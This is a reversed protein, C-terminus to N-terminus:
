RCFFLFLDIANLLETATMRLIVKEQETWKPDTRLPTELIRDGIATLANGQNRLITGVDGITLSDNVAM